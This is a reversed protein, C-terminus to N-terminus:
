FGYVTRLVCLTNAYARVTDAIPRSYGGGLVLCVPLSNSRARSFVLQDRNKLGQFSIDLRGLSDTSLADAGSLYLLIDPQFAIVAALAQEVAVLYADDTTGDSLGIDLDSPVKRFPFNKEGHISAVFMQPNPSLVAANGDGQHVDTDLIAVKQVRQEDCLTLATVALDNFVCFGSGFDRHAHHTGGALQGSIGVDLATRAAALSGGVAALTRKVLIPSWPIGVRKQIDKSWTGDLVSDVYDEDHAALLLDRTAPPSPTLTAQGLIGDDRVLQLLQRYKGAPFRHNEPLPVDPTDPYYFTPQSTMHEPPLHQLAIRPLSISELITVRAAM